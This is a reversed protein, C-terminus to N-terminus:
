AKQKDCYKLHRKIQQDRARTVEDSDYAISQEGYSQRYVNLQVNDGDYEPEYPDIRTKVHRDEIKRETVSDYLMSHQNLFSRIKSTCYRKIAGNQDIAVIKSCEDHHLATFPVIFKGIRNNMMKKCRVLVKDALSYTYSQM